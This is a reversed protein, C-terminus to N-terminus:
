IGAKVVLPPKNRSDRNISIYQGLLRDYEDMVVQYCECVAAELKERDLM